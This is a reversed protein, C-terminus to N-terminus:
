LKRKRPLSIHVPLIGFKSLEVPRFLRPFATGPNFQNEIRPHFRTHNVNVMLWM